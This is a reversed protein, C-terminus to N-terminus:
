MFFFLCFVCVTCFSTTYKKKFQCCRTDTLLYCSCLCLGVGVSRASVHVCTGRKRREAKKRRSQHTQQTYRDAPLVCVRVAGRGREAKKGALSIRRSRTDTLLYCRCGRWKGRGACSRGREVLTRSANVAVLKLEKDRMAGVGEVKKGTARAKDTIM